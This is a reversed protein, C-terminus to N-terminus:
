AARRRRYLGGAFALLGSGLLILSGPEPTPFPGYGILVQPPGDGFPVQSNDVPVLIDMKSYFAAENPNNAFAVAAAMEAASASNELDYPSVDSSFVYWAALQDAVALAPNASANVNSENYLWAAEEWDSEPYTEPTTGNLTVITSMVSIPKVTATWTEGPEIDNNYSLCMLPTNGPGEAVSFYYYPYAYYYGDPTVNPGAYEFQLNVTDAYAKVPSGMTLLCLASLSLVMCLGFKKM